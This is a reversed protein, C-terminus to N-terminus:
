FNRANARPIFAQRKYVDLHTYSVPDLELRRERFFNASFRVPLVLVGDAAGSELFEEIDEEPPLEKVEIHGGASLEEFILLGLSLIGADPAAPGTDRNVVGLAVPAPESRFLM